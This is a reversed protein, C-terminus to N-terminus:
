EAPDLSQSFRARLFARVEQATHLRGGDLHNTGEAIKRDLEALLQEAQESNRGSIAHLDRETVSM